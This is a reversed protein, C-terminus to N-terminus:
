YSSTTTIVTATPIDHNSSIVAVAQTPVPPASELACEVDPSSTKVQLPQIDIRDLSKVKTLAPSCCRTGTRLYICAMSLCISGICVALVAIVIIVTKSNIGSEEDEDETDKDNADSSDSLRDDNTTTGGDSSGTGGDNDGDGDGDLRDGGDSSGTTQVRRLLRDPTAFVHHENLLCFLFIAVSYCLNTSSCLISLLKM